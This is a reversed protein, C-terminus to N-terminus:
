ASHLEKLTEEINCDNKLFAKMAKDIDFGERKIREFDERQKNSLSLLAAEFDNSVDLRRPLQIGTLLLPAHGPMGEAHVISSSFHQSLYYDAIMLLGQSQNMVKAFQAAKEPYDWFSMSYAKDVALIKLASEISNEEEPSLDRFQKEHVEIAPEPNKTGSKLKEALKITEQPNPAIDYFDSFFKFTKKPREITLNKPQKIACVVISGERIGSLPTKSSIIKGLYCFRYVGAPFNLKSMLIIKLEDATIDPDVELERAEDNPQKFFFKM